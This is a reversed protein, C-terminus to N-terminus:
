KPRQRLQLHQQNNRLRVMRVREPGIDYSDVNGVPIMQGLRIVEEVGAGVETTARHDITITAMTTVVITDPDSGMSAPPNATKAAEATAKAAQAAQTAKKEAEDKQAKVRGIEERTRTCEAQLESLRKHILTMDEEKAPTDQEESEVAYTAKVKPKARHGAAGEDQTRPVLSAEYAELTIAVNLADELFKPERELVKLQLRPHNLAEIFAEKAM